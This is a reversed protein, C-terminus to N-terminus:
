MSFFFPLTITITCVQEAGYAAAFELFEEMRVFGDGDQDLAQFVARLPDATSSGMALPIPSCGGGGPSPVEVSCAPPEPGLGLSEYEPLAPMNKVEMLEHTDNTTEAPSSGNDPAQTVQNSSSQNLALREAEEVQEEGEGERHGKLEAPAQNAPCTQESESAGGAVDSPQEGACTPLLPPGGPTLSADQDKARATISESPGDTLCSDPASASESGPPLAHTCPKEQPQITIGNDSVAEVRSAYGDVTQQDPSTTDLESANETDPLCSLKPQHSTSAVVNNETHTGTTNASSVDTNHGNECTHM